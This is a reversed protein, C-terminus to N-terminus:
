SDEEEEEKPLQPTNKIFRREKFLKKWNKVSLTDIKTIQYGNEISGSLEILDETALDLKSFWEIIEKRYRKLRNEISKRNIFIKKGHEPYVTGFVNLQYVKETM